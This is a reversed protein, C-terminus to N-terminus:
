GADYPHRAARTDDVPAKTLTTGRGPPPLGDNAFALILPTTGVTSFGAVNAGSSSV